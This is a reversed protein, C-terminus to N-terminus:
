PRVFANSGLLNTAVEFDVVEGGMLLLGGSTVRRDRDTAQAVIVVRGGSALIAAPITLREVFGPYVVGLRLSTGRGYVTVEVPLAYRNTVRVIVPRRNLMDDAPTATTGFGHACGAVGLVCSVLASALLRSM